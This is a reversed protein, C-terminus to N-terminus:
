FMFFMPEPNWSDLSSGVGWGGDSISVTNGQEPDMRQRCRTEEDTIPIVITGIECLQPLVCLISIGSGTHATNSVWYIFTTIATIVQQNIEPNLWPWHWYRGGWVPKQREKWALQKPGYSYYYIVVRDQDSGTTALLAATMSNLCM